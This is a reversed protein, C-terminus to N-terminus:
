KEDLQQPVTNKLLLEMKKVSDDCEKLSNKILGQFYFSIKKGEMELNAAENLLRCASFMQMETESLREQEAPTLDEELLIFQQTALNQRKFISEAYKSMNEKIRLPKQAISCSALLGTALLVLFNKKRKEILASIAM